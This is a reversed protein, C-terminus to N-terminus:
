SCPPQASAKVLDVYACNILDDNNIGLLDTLGSMIERAKSETQDPEMVVEIEIFDGLDDVRDLHVRTQGLLYLTRTKHVQGVVGLAASLVERVAEPENVPCVTYRSLTPGADDPREYYILEGHGQSDVRLKLRGTKVDFFTDHQEFTIGPNGTINDLSKKTKRINTLRAKIEINRNM